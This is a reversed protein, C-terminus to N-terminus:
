LTLTGGLGDPKKQRSGPYGLVRAGTGFPDGPRRRGLHGSLWTDEHEAHKVIVQPLEEFECCVIWGLVRM